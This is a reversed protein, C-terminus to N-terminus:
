RIDHTWFTASRLVCWGIETAAAIRPRQTGPIADDFKAEELMGFTREMRTDGPFAIRGGERTPLMACKPEISM